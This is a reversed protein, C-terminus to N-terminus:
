PKTRKHYSEYYKVIADFSTLPKSFKNPFKEVYLAIDKHYLDIFDKQDVQKKFYKDCGDNYANLLKEIASNLIQNKIDLERKEDATPKKKAKVSAMEMSVSEIQNKANDVNNKIHQLTASKNQKRNLYVTLSSVMLAGISISLPIWFKYGVDEFNDIRNSLEDTIKLFLDINTNNTDPM